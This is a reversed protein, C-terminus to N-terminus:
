EDFRPVSGLIVANTYRYVETAKEKEAEM